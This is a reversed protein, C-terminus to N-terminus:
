AALLLVAIVDDEDAERRAEEALFATYATVAQRLAAMDRSLDDWDISVRPGAKTVAPAAIAQVAEAEESPDAMAKEIIARLEDRDETWTKRKKREVSIYAGKAEGAAGPQAVAGAGFTDGDVFLTGTITQPSVQSISGAGFSDPDSYLTGTITVPGVSLSGAGFQDADQYLTGSLTVPGVSVTGAGFSDSDSFLTGTLTVAGRTITGAGFSDTDSFLTGTITVPGTTIVGAGFADSDSFLTGTLTQTSGGQSVVGSGFSDGDTFLTGTLTVPGVSISGAGFADTDTFLTGTLTNRPTVTGAGFSDSDTFLTGTLTVPGRTITGAGFTDGNVYLTGTLTQPGSGGGIITYGTPPGYTTTDAQLTATNTGIFATAPFYTGAPITAGGTGASANGIRNTGNQTVYLTTGDLAWGIIDNVALAGSWSTIPGGTVLNVLYVTGGGDVLAVCQGGTGTAFNFALTAIAPYCGTVPNSHKTECYTKTTFANTARVGEPTATASAINNGGSLTVGATKDSPNWTTAM